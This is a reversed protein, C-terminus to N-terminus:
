LNELFYNTIMTFLHIRSTRDSIGHSQRPYIMLEFQKKAKILENVLQVANQFHVNDDSTGHIILLRGKLNSAYTLPSSERYGDPNDQPRDMYRETYITDYNRWDTVPAVAVGVKFVEPANLMAYCTMYGGYSWGWIGIRDKDVYPLSRLYKVGCLQDQLERRGFCRYIATEWAHGRGWSGRNDLSFIIYGKQAMLQHWLNGKGSRFSNRVVQGHPGGYVYIIVPYKKDPDFNPPKIMMAYLTAGDDAQLTLFEPTSLAYEQLEQVRNEEIFAVFRGNAKHLRLQTPTSVNSYYDLYHKQDPAMIIRHWGEQKTLRKFGTGNLKIQYLHRELPSKETATFYIVRRKEDVGVLKEVQWKGTTLRRILKGNLDYLYLHCFGDRESSWLLHKEDRFFHLHDRINIWYPDSERLIRRTKGTAPDALLLDLQTQDRNLVQIALTKGQPLWMVRPIYVDTDEGTDMWITQPDELSVVGVRAIPNPDGAKPYKKPEVVAHYPIFDLIPYEPVSREDMQLYAISRSNPSWWYATTIELEEPYVWDLQGNMVEETGNATLPTEEGTALNVVYLNYNRVFSVYRGDPSYKPDHEEEETKTLRKLEGTTLNYNFLDGKYPLLLDTGKPSWSYQGIQFDKPARLEDSDLLVGRKGTRVDYFWIDMRGTKKDRQLYTIRKGDPSWQVGQPLHGTLSPKGYIREVTLEKKGEQCFSSSFLFLLLTLSAFLVRRYHLSLGM